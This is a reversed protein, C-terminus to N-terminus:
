TTPHLEDQWYDKFIPLIDQCLRILKNFDKKLIRDFPQTCTLLDMQKVLDHTPIEKLFHCLKHWQHEYIDGDFEPGSNLPAVHRTIHHFHSKIHLSLGMNKLSLVRLKQYKMLLLHQNQTIGGHKLLIDAWCLYNKKIVSPTLTASLAPHKSATNQVPRGRGRHTKRLKRPANKISEILTNM